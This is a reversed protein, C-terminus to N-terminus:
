VYPLVPAYKNKIIVYVRNNLEKRVKSSSLSLLLGAFCHCALETFTLCFFVFFWVFKVIRKQPQKNQKEFVISDDALAVGIPWM